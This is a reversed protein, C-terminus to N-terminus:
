EQVDERLRNSALLIAIITKADVIEGREILRLAETLTLYVVEIVEDPDLNQSTPTFDTALYIHLKEECFGPTSFFEALMELHGPRAGVEATIERAACEAPSEGPEIRGAPIELLETGAPHRYQRVLAIRDDAFLPLGGAGGPHRVVERVVEAGTEDILRDREVDFVLGNFIKESAILRRSL